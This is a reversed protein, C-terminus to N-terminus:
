TLFGRPSLTIGCCVVMAIGQLTTKVKGILVKVSSRSGVSAMWERLASIVIERIIIVM